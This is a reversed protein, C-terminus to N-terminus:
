IPSYHHDSNFLSYRSDDDERRELQPLSVGPKYCFNENTNQLHNFICKASNNLRVKSTM